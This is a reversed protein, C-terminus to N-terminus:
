KPLMGIREVEARVKAKRNKEVKTCFEVGHAFGDIIAQSYAEQVTAKPNKSIYDSAEKDAFECIAEHLQQDTISM